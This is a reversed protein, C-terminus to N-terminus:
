SEAKMKALAAEDRALNKKLRDLYPGPKTESIYLQWQRVKNEKAKIAIERQYARNHVHYAEILDHRGEEALRRLIYATATEM